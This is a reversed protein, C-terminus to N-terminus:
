EHREVEGVDIQLRLLNRFQRRFRALARGFPAACSSWIWRFRVDPRDDNQAYCQRNYSNSEPLIERRGTRFDRGAAAQLINFLDDSSPFARRGSLSHYNIVGAPEFVPGLEVAGDIATLWELEGDADPLHDLTPVLAHHSHFDAPLSLQNDRRVKSIARAAGARDGRVRGQDEI